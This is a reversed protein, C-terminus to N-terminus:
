LDDKQKAWASLNTHAYSLGAILDGLRTLPMLDINPHEGIMNRLRKLTENIGKEPSFEQNPEAGSLVAEVADLFAQLDALHQMNNPIFVRRMTQPGVAYQHPDATSESATSQVPEPFHDDNINTLDVLKEYAYPSPNAPLPDPLPKFAGGSEANSSLTRAQKNQKKEIRTARATAYENWQENANALATDLSKIREPTMSDPYIEDSAVELMDHLDCLRKAQKRKFRGMVIQEM